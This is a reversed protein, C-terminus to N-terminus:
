PLSELYPQMIRAVRCIKAFRHLDDMTARRSKWTERLAELAVDLGVKNRFKFCDAVTKAPSYVRVPVGEVEHQEMGAQLAAGSFHLLRVPGVDLRPRWAQPPLAVWVEPPNQTTLQHFRLATLLCFVGQPVRSAVEALTHQETLNPSGPLTYLGRGAREVLGAAVAARLQSRNIGHGVFDRSRRVGASRFVAHLRQPLPEM